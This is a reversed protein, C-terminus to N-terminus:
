VNPTPFSGPAADTSGKCRAFSQNRGNYGVAARAAVVAARGRRRFFQLPERVSRAHPHSPPCPSVVLPRCQWLLPALSALPALKKARRSNAGKGRVAPVARGGGAAAVALVGLVGLVGVKECTSFRGRAATRAAPLVARSCQGATRPGRLQSGRWPLLSLLRRVVVELLLVARWLRGVFNNNPAEKAPPVQDRLPPGLRQPEATSLAKREDYRDLLNSITRQAVAGGRRMWEQHIEPVVRHEAHRLRVVLTLVDLGFEPHPLVTRYDAWLRHGGAPCHRTIPTLTQACM